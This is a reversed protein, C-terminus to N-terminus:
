MKDPSFSKLAMGSDLMKSLKETEIEGSKNYVVKGKADIVVVHPIYYKYFREKLDKQEKTIDTDVDILIFDVKGKYKEYLEVTRKAQHKSNFCERSYFIIYAPKGEHVTADNMNAGTILPGDNSDSTYDLNPNLKLDTAAYAPVSLFSFAISLFFASIKSM